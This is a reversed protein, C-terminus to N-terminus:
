GFGRQIVYSSIITGVDTTGSMEVTLSIYVSDTTINPITIPDPYPDTSPVGSQSFACHITSGTTLMLASINPYCREAASMTYTAVVPDTLDGASGVRIRFTASDTAGSKAFGFNAVFPLGVILYDTLTQYQTLIQEDGSLDSDTPENTAGIFFNGSVPVYFGFPSVVFISELLTPVQNIRILDGGQLTLPDPRGAWNGSYAYSLLGASNAAKAIGLKALDVYLQALSM